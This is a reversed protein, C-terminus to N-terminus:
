ETLGLSVDAGDVVADLVTDNLYAAVEPDLFVQADYEEVVVDEDAAAPTVSLAFRGPQEATAIRIGASEPLDSSSVIEGIATAADRTITLM